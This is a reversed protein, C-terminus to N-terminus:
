PASPLKRTQAPFRELAAIGSGTFTNNPALRIPISIVTGKASAVPSNM